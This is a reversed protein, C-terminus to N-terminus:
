NINRHSKFVMQADLKPLFITNYNKYAGKTLRISLGSKLDSTADKKEKTNADRGMDSRQKPINVRCRIM